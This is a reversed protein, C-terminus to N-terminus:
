KLDGPGIELREAVIKMDVLRDPVGSADAAIRDHIRAGFFINALLSTKWVRIKQRPTKMVVYFLLVLTTVQLTVPLTIWVWRVRMVPVDKFAQGMVVQVSDPHGNYTTSRLASSMSIALAEFTPAMDLPLRPCYSTSYNSPQFYDLTGRPNFDRTQLEVSLTDALFYSISQSGGKKVTMIDEGKTRPDTDTNNIQFVYTDNELLDANINRGYKATRLVEEHLIGQTVRSKYRNVCWNLMCEQAKVGSSHGSGDICGQIGTINVIPLGSHLLLPHYKGTTQVLSQSMGSNLFAFGNPLTWNLTTDYLWYGTGNRSLADILEPDKIITSETQPEADPGYTVVVYKPPPYRHDHAVHDTINACSSCVALSDFEPYTCNRTPCDHRDYLTNRADPDKLDGTFYLGKYIAGVVSHPIDSNNPDDIRVDPYHALSSLSVNGVV